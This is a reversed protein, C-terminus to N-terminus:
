KDVEIKKRWIKRMTNEKILILTGFYIVMSIVTKLCFDLFLDSVVVVDRLTFTGIVCILCAIFIKIYSGLQVNSFVVVYKKSFAIILIIVFTVSAAATAGVIGAVGGKKAWLISLIINMGVEFIGILMPIKSENLAYFAKTVVQKLAVPIICISYFFLGVATQEIATESFNGHGYVIRVISNAYFLIIILIPICILVILNFTKSIANQVSYYDNKAGAESLETFMVSSIPVGIINSVFQFLVESYTVATVAGVEVTTLM